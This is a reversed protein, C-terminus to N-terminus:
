WLPVMEHEEGHWRGDAEGQWLVGGGPKTRRHTATGAEDFVYAAWGQAITRYAGDAHRHYAVGAVDVLAHPEGETAALVPHLPVQLEDGPSPRDAATHTKGDLPGGRLLVSVLEVILPEGALPSPEPSPGGAAEIEIEALRDRVGAALTPNLSHLAVEMGQRFLRGTERHIFVAGGPSYFEEWEPDSIVPPTLPETM